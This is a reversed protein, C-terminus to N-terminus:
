ELFFISGLLTLDAFEHMYASRNLLPMNTASEEFGTVNCGASEGSAPLSRYYASIEHHPSFGDGAWHM